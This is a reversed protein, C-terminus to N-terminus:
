YAPLRKAVAAEYHGVQEAASKKVVDPVAERSLLEHYMRLLQAEDDTTLQGAARLTEVATM